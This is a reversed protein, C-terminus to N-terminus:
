SLRPPIAACLAHVDQARRPAALLLASLAWRECHNLSDFLALEAHVDARKSERLVREHSPMLECLDPTDDRLSLGSVPWEYSAGLAANAKQALSSLATRASLVRNVNIWGVKSGWVVGVMRKDLTVPAQWVMHASKRTNYIAAFPAPCHLLMWSVDQATTMRLAATPTFVARSWATLLRPTAMVSACSVCMADSRSPHLHMYAGFDRAPKFQGVLEGPAIPAGCLGCQCAEDACVLEAPAKLGLARCAMASASEVHM